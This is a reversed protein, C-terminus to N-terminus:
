LRVGFVEPNKESLAAAGDNPTHYLTLTPLNLNVSSSERRLVRFYWTAM